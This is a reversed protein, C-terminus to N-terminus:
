IGAFDVTVTPSELAAADGAALTQRVWVGIEQGADLDTGPITTPGASWADATNGTPEALRNAVSNNDGKADEIELAYEGVLGADAISNEVNLAADTGSSNKVFVKEYRVVSSGGAEEAEANIFLVQALDEGSAFTHRTTGGTGEKVTISGTATSALEVKHIREFSNSFLVPTTGTLANTESITAGSSSRGTITCDQTDGANDSVVEPQAAGSFNDELVRGSTDIAGGTTSVDDEPKSAALHLKLDSAAIAV